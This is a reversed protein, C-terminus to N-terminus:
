RGPVWPGLSADRHDLLERLCSSAVYKEPERCNVDFLFYTNQLIGYTSGCMHWLLDWSVILSILWFSVLYLHLSNCLTSHLSSPFYQQNVISMSFHCPFQIHRNSCGSESWSHLMMQTATLLLNILVLEFLLENEYYEKCSQRGWGGVYQTGVTPLKGSPFLVYLWSNWM